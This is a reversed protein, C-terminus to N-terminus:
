VIKPKISTKLYIHLQDPCFFSFHKSTSILQILQLKVDCAAVSHIEGGGGGPPRPLRFGTVTSSHWFRLWKLHYLDSVEVEASYNRSLLEYLLTASGDIITDGPRVSRTPAAGGIRRRVIRCMGAANWALGDRLLDAVFKIIISGM